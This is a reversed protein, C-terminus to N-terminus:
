VATATATIGARHEKLFTALDGHEPDANKLGSLDTFQFKFTDRAGATLRRRNALRAVRGLTFQGSPGTLSLELAQPKKTHLTAWPEKQEPVFLHVVQQNNWAFHGDGATEKLMGHLRELLSPSWERKRGLPFGKASFHWKEGMVKWPM